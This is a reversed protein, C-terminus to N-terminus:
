TLGWEKNTKLIWSVDIVLEDSPDFNGGDQPSKLPYESSKKSIKKTHNKPPNEPPNVYPITQLNKSFKESFKHISKVQM